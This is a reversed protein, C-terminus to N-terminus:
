RASGFSGRGCRAPCAKDPKVRHLQPKRSRRSFQRAPHIKPNAAINQAVRECNDADFPEDRRGWNGIPGSIFFFTGINFVRARDRTSGTRSQRQETGSWACDSSLFNSTPPCNEASRTGVLLTVVAHAANAM